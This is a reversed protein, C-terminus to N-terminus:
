CCSAAYLQCYLLCSAWYWAHSALHCHSFFWHHAYPCEYEQYACAIRDHNCCTTDSTLPRSSCFGDFVNLRECFPEHDAQAQRITASLM